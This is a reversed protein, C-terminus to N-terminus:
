YFMALRELREFREATPKNGRRRNFPKFSQAKQAIADGDSHWGRAPDPAKHAVSVLRNEKYVV